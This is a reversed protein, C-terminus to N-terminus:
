PADYVNVSQTAQIAPNPAATCAPPTSSGANLVVDASDLAGPGGDVITAVLTSTPPNANPNPPTRGDSTVEGVSGVVARGGNVTLCTVRGAYDYASQKRYDFRLTGTPSQGPAGSMAQVTGTNVHPSALTDQWHGEVADTTAAPTTFTRTQACVPSQGQDNGCVRFSYATSAYLPGQYSTASITESFPASAGAPWQQPFTTIKAQPNTTPWYEFFSSAPGNNATGQANLQAGDFAVKSAPETSAYCGGVALAVLACV